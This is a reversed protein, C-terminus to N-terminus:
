PSELDVEDATGVANGGSEKDKIKILPPNSSNIADLLANIQTANMPLDNQDEFDTSGAFDFTVGLVTIDGSTANGTATSAIGQVIVDDVQDERKIKNAILGSGSGDDVGEVTIFDGNNLNDLLAASNFNGVEDEIETSTDIQVTITPQGAVPLLEFTGASSNASEVIAAVKVDGDELEVKTAVLVNNSINGEVEVLMDVALQLSAPEKIASSADITFPIGNIMFNSDSTYSTIIGEIEVKSVDDFDDGEGEVRTATIATCSADDCTGKVEVFAGNSLSILDDLSASTADITIGSFGQLNFINNSLNTIAGKLEM